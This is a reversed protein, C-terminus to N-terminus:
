PERVPSILLTMTEKESLLKGDLSIQMNISLLQATLVELTLYRCM